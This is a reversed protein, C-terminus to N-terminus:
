FLMSTVCVCCMCMCVCSCVCICMCMCVCVYVHACVHVDEVTLDSVFPAFYATVEKGGFRREDRGVLCCWV